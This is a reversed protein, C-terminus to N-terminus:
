DVKLVELEAAEPPQSLVAVAQKRWRNLTGRAKPYTGTMGYVTRVVLGLRDERFASDGRGSEWLVDFEVLAAAFLHAGLLAQAYALRVRLDEPAAMLAHAAASLAARNSVTLRMNRVFKKATVPPSVRRLELGDPEQLLIVPREEVGWLAALRDSEAGGYRVAIAEVEVWRTAEADTWVLEDFARTLEEDPAELEILLLLDTQEARARAAELDLDLFLDQGQGAALVPLASFLVLLPSLHNM